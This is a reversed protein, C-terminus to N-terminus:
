LLHTEHTILTVPPSREGLPTPSLGQPQYAPVPQDLRKQELMQTVIPLVYVLLGLPQLMGNRVPKGLPQGLQQPMRIVVRM